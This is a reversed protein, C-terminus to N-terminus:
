NTSRMSIPSLSAASPPRAGQIMLCASFFGLLEGVELPSADVFPNAEPPAALLSHFLALMQILEAEQEEVDELTKAPNSAWSSLLKETRQLAMGERYSLAKVKLEVGRWVLPIPQGLALANELNLYKPAERDAQLLKRGQAAIRDIESQSLAKLM